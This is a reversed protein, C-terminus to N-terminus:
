LAIWPCKYRILNRNANLYNDYTQVVIPNIPKELRESLIDLIKNKNYIIDHFSITVRHFVNQDEKNPTCNFESNFIRLAVKDCYYKLKDGSLENPDIDEEKLDDWYISNKLNYDRLIIKFFKFAGLLEKDRPHITVKINLYSPYKEKAYSANFTFHQRVVFPKNTNLPGVKTFVQTAQYVEKGLKNWNETYIESGHADGYQSYLLPIKRDDLWVYVLSAIFTGASGAAFTVIYADRM